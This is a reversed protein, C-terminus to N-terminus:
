IGRIETNPVYQNMIGKFRELEEKSCSHLGKKIVHESSVFGQLFYKEAGKIWKGIEHFDKDEHYEKVVTTRFEYRVEGSLLFEASRKVNTIGFDEIGTTIGYKAPSNKIDMAVYDVLGSRVLRVLKDPFSGNTDLKVDYGLDKIDSIFSDIESNILPEGGSICVGELVRVRKRLFAFLEENTIEQQNGTNIVLDSNHCFPCAFNCGKTFVTCAMRGPFDLLTLKQIGGIKM